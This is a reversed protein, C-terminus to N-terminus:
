GQARTTLSRMCAPRERERERERGGWRENDREERDRREGEREREREKEGEGETQRDREGRYTQIHTHNTTSKGERNRKQIVTNGEWLYPFYPCCSNVLYYVGLRRIPFMYNNDNDKYTEKSEWLIIVEKRLLTQHM